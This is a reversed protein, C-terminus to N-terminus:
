QLMLEQPGHKALALRELGFFVGKVHSLIVGFGVCNSRNLTKYM